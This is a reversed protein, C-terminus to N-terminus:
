DRPPLTAVDVDAANTQPAFLLGHMLKSQAGTHKGKMESEYAKRADDASRKGDIIDKALNLALFNASEGGCRASLEGKTREVMVSGDFRALATMKEAPVRFAIAQELVDEHPSPWEHHVPDRSLISTKWPGRDKWFLQSATMEDPAGYKDVMEKAADKSVSPWTSTVDQWTGLSASTTQTTGATASGAPPVPQDHCAAIGLSALALMTIARPGM